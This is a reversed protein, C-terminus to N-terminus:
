FRPKKPHYYVVISAPLGRMKIFGWQAPNREFNRFFGEQEIWTRSSRLNADAILIDIRGDAIDEHPIGDKSNVATADGRFGITVDPDTWWGAIVPHPRVLTAIQRLADIEFNPRPALFNPRCCLVCAVLVLLGELWVADLVAFLSDFGFAVALYFAPVWPLYYRPTGVLLFIAVWSTSALALILLWKRRLSADGWLNPWLPRARWLRWSGALFAALLAARLLWYQAGRHRQGQDRLRALFIGPLNRLNNAGNWAFYRLAEGPNNEIAECFGTPHRFVRDFVLKYDTMPSFDEAPHRHQYFDAYCQGLGLLAYRDLRAAKKVLVSPPHTAFIDAGILALALTLSFTWLPRVGCARRLNGAALVVLRTGWFLTLLLVLWYYEPRMAAALGAFIYFASIRLPSGKRMIAAVGLMMAGFVFLSLSSSQYFPANLSSAIWIFCASLIASVRLLGSCARLVLFLAITAVASSIYKVLSLAVLADPSLWKLLVVLCDVYLSGNWRLPKISRFAAILPTHEEAYGERANWIGLCFVTHAIVLILLPHHSVWDAM